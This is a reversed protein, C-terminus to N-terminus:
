WGNKGVVLPRGAQVAQFANHYVSFAQCRFEQGCQCSFSAGHDRHQSRVLVIAQLRESLNPLKECQLHISLALHDPLHRQSLDRQRQWFMLPLFQFHPHREDTVPATQNAMRVM